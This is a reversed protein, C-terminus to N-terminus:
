CQLTLTSVFDLFIFVDVQIILVVFSLNIYIFYKVVSSHSYGLPHPFFFGPHSCLHCLTSM